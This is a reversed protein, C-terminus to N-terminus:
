SRLSELDPQETALWHVQIYAHQFLAAILALQSGALLAVAWLGLFAFVYMANPTFRFMGERVLPLDRDETRFHDSGAARVMGFATRVSVLTAVSPLLLFVGLPLAVERPLALSGQDVWALALLLAPRALLLPFFTLCWALLDRDGFVKTWVHFGLQARWGLWVVIQHLVAEVVAAVFWPTTEPRLWPAALAWTAPLMAVLFVAHLVQGKFFGPLTAVEPVFPRDM